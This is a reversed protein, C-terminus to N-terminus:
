KTLPSRRRLLFCLSVFLMLFWFRSVRADLWKHIAALKVGGQVRVVEKGGVTGMGLISDLASMDVVTGGDNRLVGTVSHASGVALVPSPFRAADRVAACVDEASMARVVVAPRSAICHNWNHMLAIPAAEPIMPDTAM